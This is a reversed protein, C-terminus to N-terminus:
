KLRAEDSLRDKRAHLFLWFDIPSAVQTLAHRGLLTSHPSQQPVPSQGAVLKSPLMGNAQVIQIKVTRLGLERQFDVTTLMTQWLPPSLIL